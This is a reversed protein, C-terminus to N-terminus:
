CVAELQTRIQDKDQELSRKKETLALIDKSSKESVSNIKSELDKHIKEIEDRISKEKEQQQEQHQKQQQQLQSLLHDHKHEEQQQQQTFSHQQQHLSAQLQQLAM